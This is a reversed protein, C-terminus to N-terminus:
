LYDQRCDIVPTKLRSTFDRVKQVQYDRGVQKPEAEPLGLM